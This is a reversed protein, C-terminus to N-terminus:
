EENLQAQSGAQAVAAAAAAKLALLVLQVDEQTNVDGDQPICSCALLASCHHHLAVPKRQGGEQAEWFQSRGTSAWTLLLWLVVLYWYPM